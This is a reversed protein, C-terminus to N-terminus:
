GASSIDSQAFVAHVASLVIGVDKSTPEATLDGHVIRNRLDILSRLSREVEYSIHGDIALTQVVTGPKRPRKDADPQVSNLAAELLSWAIIFAERLHGKTALQDVEQARALIAARDAAPLGPALPGDSGMYAVTFQWDPRGEFLKRIRQISQQAAQTARSKVEIAINNGTKKAVADPQYTAFFEPLDSQRPQVIFEYGRSEYEERLSELFSIEADQPDSSAALPM